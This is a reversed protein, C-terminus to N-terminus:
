FLANMLATRGKRVREDHNGVVNFLELLHTRAKDREEGETVKVTDILRTFADAVHGGLVDLDAVAIQADVDEPSAAATARVAQADVGDTRQMLKVQALGLEAEHDKPNEALAREYASVAADLDGRDIADYAEQLLPPLPPLEDDFGDAGSAGAGPTPGLDVRGTIGNQIAAQVLQDLVTRIEDDQPIGPFLPVPQGQLLGFTVPVSLQGFAQVIVQQFAQLIGPSTQVDASVVFLRGELQAAVAAIREALGVTQPHASSWLVLVAPVQLTRNMVESFTADTVEVLVGEPLGPTSPAGAAASPQAPAGAPPGPQAGLASLDIAGRAGSPPTPTTSM